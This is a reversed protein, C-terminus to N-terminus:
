GGFGWDYLRAIVPILVVALVVLGILSFFAVAGVKRSAAKDRDELLVKLQEPTYKSLDDEGSREIRIDDM